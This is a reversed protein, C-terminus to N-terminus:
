EAQTQRHEEGGTNRQFVACDGVLRGLVCEGVDVIAMAEGDRYSDALTRRDSKRILAKETSRERGYVWLLMAKAAGSRRCKRLAEASKKSCPLRSFLTRARHFTFAAAVHLSTFQLSSESERERERARESEREVVVEPKAQLM